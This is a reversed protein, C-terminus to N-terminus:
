TDGEGAWKWRSLIGLEQKTEVQGAIIGAVELNGM